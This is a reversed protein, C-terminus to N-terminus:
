CDATSSFRPKQHWGNKAWEIIKSTCCVLAYASLLALVPDMPHRYRAATHCLYYVVPFFVMVNLLPLSLLRMQRYAFLLGVLSFLTFGYNVLLDCRLMVNHTAWLDAFSDSHGTWTEIFRHFQFRAVDTPHKKM